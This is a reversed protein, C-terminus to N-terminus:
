EKVERGSVFKKVENAYMHALRTPEPLKYGKLCHKVIKLCSELSVKHGPAVIIPNSRKNSKLLWGVQEEDYILKRSEEVEAPTESIGCLIKKSVGITPVDMVVGFYSAMGARTPHNIGCSDFMVIDPKNGLELFTSAIAKGERFNLYTPIYPFVVKQVTYKKEIVELTTYDLVVMVCIIKDDFYACDTGAIRDIKEYGDVISLNHIATEQLKRLEKLTHSGPDFWHDLENKNSPQGYLQSYRDM